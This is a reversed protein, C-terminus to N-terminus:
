KSATRACRLRSKVSGSCELTAGQSACTMPRRRVVAKSESTPRPQAQVADKLNRSPIRGVLNTSGLNVNFFEDLFKPLKPDAASDDYRAIAFHRLGIHMGACADFSIEDILGRAFVFQDVVSGMLAKLLERLREGGIAALDVM